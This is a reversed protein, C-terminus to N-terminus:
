ESYRFQMRYLAYYDSKLTLLENHTGRESVTGGNVVLIEDADEITSLRHAVVITTRGEMLTDLAKKVLEQSGADLASTAEDLLLVPADKLIARAIAIRQRQGGSLKIAREGVLTDYGNEQEMIFDHAYAMKAARVVEEHTAGKRGYRINEEISADFLFSEQSVYSTTRRLEERSYSALCRGRVWINGAQADYFGLLLKIITSKGGGSEGVLALKKGPEATFSINKLVPKDGYSFEVDKFEVEAPVAEAMALAFGEPEEGADLMERIRMGAVSTSVAEGFIQGTWRFMMTVSGALQSVVLLTSLSLTGGFVFLAGIILAANAVTSTMLANAANQLGKRFELHISTGTYDQNMRRYGEYMKEELGFMKIVANGSLIGLLEQVLKANKEYAEKSYKKVAKVLYDNLLKFALSMACFCLGLKWNVAVATAISMIGFIIFFAVNPIQEGFLTQFTSIDNTVRSILDGSLHGDYYSMPLKNIKDFASSRIRAMMRNVCNMGGYYCACNIFQLVMSALLLFVMIMLQGIDHTEVAKVVNGLSLTALLSSGSDLVSSLIIIFLYRGQEPKMLGFLIYIDSNKIKNVATGKM